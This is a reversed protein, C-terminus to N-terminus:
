KPRVAVDFTAGAGGAPAVVLRDHFTVQFDVNV